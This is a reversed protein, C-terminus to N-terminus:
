LGADCVVCPAAGAVESYECTLCGNIVSSCSGCGGLGDPYSGEMLNFVFVLLSSKGMNLKAHLVSLFGVRLSMIVSFATKFWIRVVAVDVRVEPFSGENVDCRVRGSRYLGLFLQPMGTVAVWMLFLIGRLPALAGFELTWTCSSGNSLDMTFTGKKKKCSGMPLYITASWHLLDGVLTRQIQRGWNVESVM